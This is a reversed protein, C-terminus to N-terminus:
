RITVDYNSENINAKPDLTITKNSVKLQAYKILVLRKSKEVGTFHLIVHCSQAFNKQRMVTVFRLM